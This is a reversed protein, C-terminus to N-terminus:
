FCYLGSETKDKSTKQELFIFEFIVTKKRSKTTLQDDCIQWIQITKLIDKFANCEWFGMVLGATAWTPIKTEGGM